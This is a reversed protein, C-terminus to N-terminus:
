FSSVWRGAAYAFAGIAVLALAPMAYRRIWRPLRRKPKRELMTAPESRRHGPVLARVVASLSGMTPHAGTRALAAAIRDRVDAMSAPRAETSLSLCSAVLADLDPDIGHVKDSPRPPSADEPIDTVALIADIDSPWPLSGALLVYLTAGFAYLDARHDVKEGRVQEPAM